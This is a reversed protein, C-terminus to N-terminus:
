ATLAGIRDICHVFARVALELDRVDIREDPAHM